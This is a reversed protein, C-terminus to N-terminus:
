CGTTTTAGGFSSSPKFVPQSTSPPFESPIRTRTPIRWLGEMGSTDRGGSM